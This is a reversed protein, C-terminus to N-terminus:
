QLAEGLQPRYGSVFEGGSMRARGEPGVEELALLGDGTAVALGDRTVVAVTGPPTPGEPPAAHPRSRLVKLVKGRFRATAGPEPALARVRRWLREAPESWDLVRDEPSLRPALTAAADDQPREELTGAALRALTEVLLAAGVAALRAGLVGADDEPDIAEEAQLLIPGTDVGADMRITTVGTAPLGRLIAHQVPAAGRLEPLLSFHVNVPITRPVALVGPPLIEGYAVVVLVDPRPDALSAMGEGATVTPPEVVAMGHARAADAVPTPTLRNGRGAPKPPRTFAIVDHGGAVLAELSPVSWRDSGLFAVRM